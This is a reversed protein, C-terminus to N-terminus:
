SLQTDESETITKTLLPSANEKTTLRFQLNQVIKTFGLVPQLANGLYILRLSYEESRLKKAYFAICRSGFVKFKFWFKSTVAAPKHM